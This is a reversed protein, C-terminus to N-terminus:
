NNNKLQLVECINKYLQQKNKLVKIGNHSDPMKLEENGSIFFHAKKLEKAILVPSTYAVGVTVIGSSILSYLDENSRLIKVRREKQLKLLYREYKKSYIRKYPRKPKVILNLKINFDKSIETCVDAVLTLNNFCNIESYFNNARKQPTVDFYIILLESEHIPIIQRPRFIISGKIELNQLGMSHLYNAQNLDWVFHKDIVENIKIRNPHFSKDNALDRIISINTGYWFMIKTFKSEDAFSFAAPLSNESSQTTFLYSNKNAKRNFKLWVYKDLISFKISRFNLNNVKEILAMERILDLYIQFTDKITLHKSILYLSIDLTTFSKGLKFFKLNKRLEIVSNEENASFNMRPESLFKFFSGASKENFVQENTLSFM